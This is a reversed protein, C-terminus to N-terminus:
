YEGSVHTERKAKMKGIDKNKDGIFLMFRLSLDLRIIISM